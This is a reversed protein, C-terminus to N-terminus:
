PTNVTGQCKWTGNQYTITNFVIQSDRQLLFEIEGQFNGDALNALEAYLAHSGAPVTLEWKIMGDFSTSKGASTSMFREQTAVLNMNLLQNILENRKNEPYSVADKLLDGLPKTTSSGDSFQVTVNGASNLVQYGEGRYVVM